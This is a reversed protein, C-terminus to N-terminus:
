PHPQAPLTGRHAEREKERQPLEAARTDLKRLGMIGCTERELEIGEVAAVQILDVEVHPQRGELACHLADFVHLSQIHVVQVCDNVVAEVRKLHAERDGGFVGAESMYILSLSTEM